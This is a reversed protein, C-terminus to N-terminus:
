YANALFALRVLRSNKEAVRMGLSISAYCLAVQKEHPLDFFQWFRMDECNRFLSFLLYSNCVIGFYTVIARAHVASSFDTDHPLQYRGFRARCHQYCRRVTCTGDINKESERLGFRLM